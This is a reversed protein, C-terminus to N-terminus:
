ESLCRKFSETERSVNRARSPTATRPAEVRPGASVGLAGIRGSAVLGAEVIAGEGESDVLPFSVEAFAGAAADEGRLPAWLLSGGVAAIQGGAFSLPAEVEIELGDTLGM